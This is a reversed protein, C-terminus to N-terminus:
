SALINLVAATGLCVSGGLFFWNALYLMLQSGM